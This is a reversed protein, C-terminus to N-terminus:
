IATGRELADRIPAAREGYVREMQRQYREERVNVSPLTPERRHGHRRETKTGLAALLRKRDDASVVAGSAPTALAHEAARALRREHQVMTKETQLGRARDRPETGAAVAGRRPAPVDALARLEDMTPLVPVSAEKAAKWKRKRRRRRAGDEVEQNAAEAARVEAEYEARLARDSAVANRERQASLRLLLPLLVRESGDGAAERQRWVRWAEDPEDAIWNLSEKGKEEEELALIDEQLDTLDDLDLDIEDDSM